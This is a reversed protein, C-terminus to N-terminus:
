VFLLVSLFRLSSLCSRSFFFLFDSCISCRRSTIPLRSSAHNMSLCLLCLPPLVFSFPPSHRSSTDFHFPSPLLMSSDQLFIFLFQLFYIFLFCLIIMCPSFSGILISFSCIFFSPYCGSTGLTRLDSPPNPATLM